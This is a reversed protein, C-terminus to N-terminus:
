TANLKYLNRSSKKSVNTKAGPNEEDNKDKDFLIDDLEKM